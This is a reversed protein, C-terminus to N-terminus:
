NQEPSTEPTARKQGRYWRQYAKMRERNKEYYAKAYARQKAIREDVTLEPAPPVPDSFPTDETTM